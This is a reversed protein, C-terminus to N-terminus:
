SRNMGKLYKTEENTTQKHAENTRHDEFKDRIRNTISRYMYVAHIGINLM